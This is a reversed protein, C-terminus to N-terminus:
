IIKLEEFNTKPLSSANQCNIITNNNFDLVIYGADLYQKSKLLKKFEKTNKIAKILERYHMKAYYFESGKVLIVNIESM